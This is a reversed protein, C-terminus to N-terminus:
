YGVGEGRTGKWEGGQNTAEGQGEVEGEGVESLAVVGGGEVM